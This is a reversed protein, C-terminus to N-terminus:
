TTKQESDTGRPATARAPRAPPHEPSATQPPSPETAATASTRAPEPTGRPMTGPPEPFPVAEARPMGALGTGARRFAKPPGTAATSTPEKAPRGKRATAPTPSSAATARAKSAPGRRPRGPYARARARVKRREAGTDRRTRSPLSEEAGQRQCPGAANADAQLAGPQPQPRLSAGEARGPSPERRRTSARGNERRDTGAARAAPQPTPGSGELRGKRRVKVPSRNTRASGAPEDHGTGACASPSGNSATRGTSTETRNRASSTRVGPIGGARQIRTKM